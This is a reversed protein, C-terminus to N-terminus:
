CEPVWNSCAVLRPEITSLSLANSCASLGMEKGDIDVVEHTM